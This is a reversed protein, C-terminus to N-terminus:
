HKDKYRSCPLQVQRFIAESCIVTKNSAIIRMYTINIYLWVEIIRPVQAYQIKAEFVASLRPGRIISACIVSTQSHYWCLYTFIHASNAVALRFRQTTLLLFSLRCLIKPPNTPSLELLGFFLFLQKEAVCSLRFTFFLSCLDIIVNVSLSIFLKIPKRWQTYHEFLM